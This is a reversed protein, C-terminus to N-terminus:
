PISVGTIVNQLYEGPGSVLQFIQLASDLLKEKAVQAEEPADPSLNIIPADREFSPEPLKNARLYGNLTTTQKNLDQVLVELPSLAAHGNVGNTGKTGNAGNIGNFIGNSVM